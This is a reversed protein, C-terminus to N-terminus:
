KKKKTLKQRKSKSKKKPTDLVDGLDVGLFKALMKIFKIKDAAQCEPQGTLLDFKKAAELLKKLEEMERKLADFDRKSVQPEPPITGPLPNIWPKIKEWPKPWKEPFRDRYNDGINSVVCM